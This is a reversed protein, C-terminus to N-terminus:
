QTVFNVLSKHLWGDKYDAFLKGEFNTLDVKIWDQSEDLVRLIQTKTIKGIVKDELSPGSRINVPSQSPSIVVQAEKSQEQGLVQDEESITITEPPSELENSYTKDFPTPFPTATPLSILSTNNIPQSSLYKQVKPILVFSGTIVLLSTSISILILLFQKPSLFSSKPLSFNEKEEKEEIDYSPNKQNLNKMFLALFVFGAIFVIILGWMGLTQAGGVFGFVSGLSSASSVLTKLTEIKDLVKQKEEVAERYARIKGQPTTAEKQLREIKDLSADIDAKVLSGQAFYSTNKLPKILNEAQNRLSLIEENSIKWIDQTEVSLVKTENPKLEFEGFVFYAEQIADYDLTLDPDIKIIHEEKIERPLYYKLPVKQTLTSSPNTILTKFIISGEEIWTKIIPQESIKTLLTKNVDVVAKLAAIKNKLYTLDSANSESITLISSVNSVTNIASIDSSLNKVKDYIDEADYSGWKETLNEINNDILILRDLTQQIGRLHGFLTATGSADSSTGLTTAITDISGIIDGLDYSEDTKISLVASQTAIELNNLTALQGTGLDASTLTRTTNNWIDAILSGFSTLSRDAYNWIEDILSGFSSLTRNTYGWIESATLVPNQLNAGFTNTTNHSSTQADWVAGAVESSSMYSPGIYFSKDICLYETNHTCCMQSRYLGEEEGTTDITYSYWGDSYATMAVSNLFVEGSPDRSTLTCSATAIPTYNDDYLFEGIICSSNTKCRQYDANGAFVERTNLSLFFISWFIVFLFLYFFKKM